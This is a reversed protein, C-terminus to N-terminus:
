SILDAIKLISVYQSGSVFDYVQGNDATLTDSAWSLDTVSVSSQIRNINASQNPFKNGAPDRIGDLVETTIGTARLKGTAQDRSVAALSGFVSYQPTQTGGTPDYALAGITSSAPVPMPFFSLGPEVSEAPNLRYQGFYEGENLKFEWNPFLSSISKIKDDVKHVLATNHVLQSASVLSTSSTDVNTVTYKSTTPNYSQITVRQDSDMIFTRNKLRADPDAKVTTEHPPLFALRIGDESYGHGAMHSQKESSYWDYPIMTKRSGNNFAEKHSSSDYVKSHPLWSTNGSSDKPGGHVPDSTGVLRDDDKGAEYYKQMWLIEWIVKPVLDIETKGAAQLAANILKQLVADTYVNFALFGVKLANGQYLDWAAKLSAQKEPTVGDPAHQIDDLFEPRMWAFWEYTGVVFPWLWRINKFVSDVARVISGDYGGSITSVTNGVAVMGIFIAVVEGAKFYPMQKVMPGGTEQKVRSSSNDPGSEFDASFNQELLWPPYELIIPNQVPSSNENQQHWEDLSLVTGDALVAVSWDGDGHKGHHWLSNTLLVSGSDVKSKGLGKIKAAKANSLLDFVM